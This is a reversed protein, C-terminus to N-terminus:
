SGSRQGEAKHKLSQKLQTVNDPTRRKSDGEFTGGNEIVLTDAIVTGTFVGSAGVTFRACEVTGDCRGDIRVESAVLEGEARGSVEITMLSDCAINGEVSGRVFLEGTVEQIGRIVTGEGVVTSNRPLEQLTDVESDETLASIGGNMQGMALFHDDEEACVGRGGTGWFGRKFM